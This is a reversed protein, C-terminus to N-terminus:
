ATNRFLCIVILTLITAIGIGVLAVTLSGGLLWYAMILVLLGTIFLNAIRKHSLNM